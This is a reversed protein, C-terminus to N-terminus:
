PRLPRGHRDTGGNAILLIGDIMCWIVGIGTFGLVLQLVAIHIHGTYFRGAGFPLLIQLLGAAVRSKESYVSLEAPPAMPALLLPAPPPPAMFPPYPAPLDQFLARLDARTQAEVAAGVRQEYEDMALRGASFHEGLVRVAEEREQTGIRLADRDVPDGVADRYTFTSRHHHDGPELPASAPVTPM